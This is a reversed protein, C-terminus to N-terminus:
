VLLATRRRGQHAVLTRRDVSYRLPCCCAAPCPLLMHVPHRDCRHHDPHHKCRDRGRPYAGPHPGSLVKAVQDLDVADPAGERLCPPHEVPRPGIRAKLPDAVRRGALQVSVESAVELFRYLKKLQVPSRVLQVLFQPGGDAAPAACSPVPRRRRRWIAPHRPRRQWCRPPLPRTRCRLRSPRAGWSVLQEIQAATAASLPDHRKEQRM